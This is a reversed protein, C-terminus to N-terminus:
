IDAKKFATWIDNYETRDDDNWATLSRYNIAKRLKLYAEKFYGDHPYVRELWGMACMRGGSEHKAGKCWTERKILQHIKM